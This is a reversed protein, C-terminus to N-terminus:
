LKFNQAVFELFGEVVGGAVKGEAFEILSDDEVALAHIEIGCVEIGPM